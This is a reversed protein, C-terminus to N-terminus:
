SLNIFAYVNKKSKRNSCNKETTSKNNYQLSWRYSFKEVNFTFFIKIVTVYAINMPLQKNKRKKVEHFQM